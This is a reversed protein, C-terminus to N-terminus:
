RSEELLQETAESQSRITEESLSWDDEQIPAILADKVRQYVRLAREDGVVDACLALALQAPGSGSYGWEFGDPSHNYLDNRPPLPYDRHERDDIRKRIVVVAGRPEPYREGVYSKM